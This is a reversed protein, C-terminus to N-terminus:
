VRCGGCACTPAGDRVRINKRRGLKRSCESIADDGAKPHQRPITRMTPTTPTTPTTETDDANNTNDTNDAHQRQPTTTNPSPPVGHEPVVHGAREPIVRFCSLVPELLLLSGTSGELGLSVVVRSLPRPRTRSLSLLFAGLECESVSAPRTRAAKLPLHLLECVGGRTAAGGPRPRLHLCRTWPRLGTATGNRAQRSGRAMTRPPSLDNGWPLRALHCKQDCVRQAGANCDWERIGLYIVKVYRVCAAKVDGHKSGFLRAHQRLERNVDGGVGTFGM